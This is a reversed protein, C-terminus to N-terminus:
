QYLEVLFLPSLLSLAFLFFLKDSSSNVLQENQAESTPCFERGLHIIIIAQSM